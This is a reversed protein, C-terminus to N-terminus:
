PGPPAQLGLFAILEAQAIARSEAFFLGHDLRPLLRVQMGPLRALWGAKRGFHIEIDDLAADQLGLVVTCRAGRASLRRMQRRLERTDARSGLRTRLKGVLKGLIVGLKQGLKLEGRLLRRWKDLKGLGGMANSMLLRTSAGRVHDPEVLAQGPAWVWEGPNVSFVGAIRPDHFAARHAHYAGSCVGVAVAQGYGADELVALAAQFEAERPVEYINSRWGGAFASDGLGSFDFRLSAVGLEALRRACDVAFGGIGTRPDGGTNTFIVARREAGPRKPACLIGALGPGFCLATEEATGLDLRAPELPPASARAAAPWASALRDLWGSAQDFLAQPPSNLYAEKFLEDYGEFGAAEIHCGLAELRARLGKAPARSALFVERPAEPLAALDVRSAHAVTAASTRIGDADIAADQGGQDAIDMIRASLRLERIWVSGKQIPALLM